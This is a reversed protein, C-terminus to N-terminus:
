IKLCGRIVGLFYLWERLPYLLFLLPEKYLLSLQLGRLTSGLVKKFWKHLENHSVIELARSKGTKHLGLVWVYWNDSMKHLLPYDVIKTKWGYQAM